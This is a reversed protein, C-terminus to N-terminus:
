NKREVRVRASVPLDHGPAPHRNVTVTVLNRIVDRRAVVTADAWRQEIDAAPTGPLMRLATPASLEAVRARAAELDALVQPEAAGFAVASMKRAALMRTMEKYHAEVEAFENRAGQLEEDDAADKLENYAGPGSLWELVLGAVYDDLKAALIRVHSGDRCTYEAERRLEPHRNNPTYRVTMPGGCVGCGAILSLLHKTRGPRSTTRSPDTLLEQVAYFLEMDVLAPWIADVVVQGEAVKKGERWGPRHLRKGAYAINLAINRVRAPSWSRAATGTEVNAANLAAAISRLSRGSAVDHFIRRVVDAEPPYPYQGCLVRKGSATLEYERRYGYPTVGHPKGDATNKAMARSVRQSVRDSEYASDVGDEALTRWDRPVAMDYERGHSEVFIRVGQKECRTLLAAWTELTRDGRSSEWLWLRGVEPRELDALLRTWDPRAKKSHRSASVGDRYVGFVARGDAAARARGAAEQEDTSRTSDQSQRAYILDSGGPSRKPAM